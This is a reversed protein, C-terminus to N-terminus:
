VNFQRLFLQRVSRYIRNALPEMGHDFRVLAREGVLIAPLPDTPVVDFVFLPQLTRLGEPDSPDVVINGGAQTALAPSPLVASGEPASAVVRAPVIHEIDRQLRIDVKAGSSRVLDARDESVAVRLRMDEGVIYGLLDGQSVYRGALDQARPIVLMGARSATIQLADQRARFHALRGELHRVQERMLQAQVPDTAIAFDLRMRIEALQAEALRTQNALIPDEMDVLVIGAEIEGAGTHIERIFGDTQARILEEEELWVVSHAMTAHVVPTVFLVAALGAVAAGVLAVARGRNGRLQPTTFLWWVGKALPFVFMNSLAWIALAIGIFFFKSAVFLAIAFSIFMRYLLSAISYFLFWGREGRATVPSVADKVGFVYRQLLYLTYRNSRQGLNPVEILDAMVFYGDFRLLPNGNFLLTSVGGILMVNFAFARALGPEANLWFLLALAALAMEVMIGAGGVVTRRWKSPFATSSSADVYPVPIFVLFMVGVEHVEGDWVKTAYAHGLEHIAKVLPFALALLLVNEASLIRDQLDQTLVTWNLVALTLGSVVLALWALMGWITFLPKVLWATADLFRDPDFLPLRLALPNRLRSLMSRRTHDRHREGMEAIDPLTDSAILDAAHLQSLLRIVEPQTPPDDEFRECALEWLSQISRRGDMLGIMLNGAPSIRHYKGSHHDQVIYWTGRRFRQRHIEVHSRLRPRLAAVRYWDPSLFSDAM